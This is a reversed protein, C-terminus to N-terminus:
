ICIKKFKNTSYDFKYEEYYSATKHWNSEKLKFGTKNIMRKGRMSSYIIHLSRAYDSSLPLTHPTIMTFPKCLYYIVKELDCQDIPSCDIFGFKSLKTVIRNKAEIGQVLLHFHPQMKIDDHISIETKRISKLGIKRFM